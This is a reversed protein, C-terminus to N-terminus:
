ARGRTEVEWGNPTEVAELVVAGTSAKRKRALKLGMAAGLVVIGVGLAAAAAFAILFMSAVLGVGLGFWRLAQVLAEPARDVASVM